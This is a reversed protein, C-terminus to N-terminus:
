LTLIIMQLILLEGKVYSIRMSPAFRVLHVSELNVAKKSHKGAGKMNLFQRHLSSAERGMGPNILGMARKSFYTNAFDAAFDKTKYTAREKARKRKGSKTIPPFLEDKSGPAGKYDGYNQDILQKAEKPSHDERYKKYRKFTRRSAFQIVEGDEPKAEFLGNPNAAPTAVVDVSVLESCRAKKQGGVSEAEGQFSASLGFSEPMESAMELAHDFQSHSKLLVWDGKLQNGEVTFNTLYGNIADSGTKHNWKVPVKGKSKACSFMQAVTMDDVELDHGRAKIGSTIISVGHVVGNTEDVGKSSFNNEFQFNM